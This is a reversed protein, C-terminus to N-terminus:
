PVDRYNLRRVLSRITSRDVGLERALARMAEGSAVRQRIVSAQENTFKRSPRPLNNFSDLRSRGKAIMDAINDASTGLFLHDPRCCARNDCKHLVWLGNPIPGSTLTWAVRHAGELFRGSNPLFVKGYGKTFRCATWEWCGDGDVKSVRSWFREEFTFKPKAM